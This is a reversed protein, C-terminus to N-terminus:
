SCMLLLLLLVDCALALLHARIGKLLHARAEAWLDRRWSTLVGVPSQLGDPEVLAMRTIRRLQCVLDEESLREGDAVVTLAFAQGRFLVVIHQPESGPFSIRTRGGRRGSLLERAVHAGDAPMRPAPPVRLEDRAAGPVRYSGFLRYYQEMCLPQGKERANCRDVPLGRRRTPTRARTPHAGRTANQTDRIYSYQVPQLNGVLAAAQRGVHLNVM